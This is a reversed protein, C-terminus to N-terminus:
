RSFNASYPMFSIDASFQLIAVWKGWNWAALEVQTLKYSKEWYSSDISM